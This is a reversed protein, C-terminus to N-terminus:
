QLSFTGAIMTLLRPIISGVNGVITQKYRGGIDRWVMFGLLERGRWLDSWYQSEEHGAEIILTDATMSHPARPTQHIPEPQTLLPKNQPPDILSTTSGPHM